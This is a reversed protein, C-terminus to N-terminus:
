DFLSYYGQVDSERWIIPEIDIQYCYWLYILRGARGNGDVFPHIKEFNVHYQIAEVADGPLGQDILESMKPKVEGPPPPIDGGIRVMLDRYEGAIEPQRGEMIRKHTQAIVDHSISPQEKLYEWSQLSQDVADQEYVGEIANSERIFEEVSVHFPSTDM